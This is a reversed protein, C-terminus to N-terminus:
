ATKRKNGKTNYLYVISGIILILVLVVDIISFINNLKEVLGRLNRFENLFGLIIIQGVIFPAIFRVIVIWIEALRFNGCGQKVEKLVIKKKWFFGVFISLFFAGIPLMYNASINEIIGMPNFGIKDTSLIGTSLASPIGIIIIVMGMLTAAKVRPWKKEDILYSTIVELLSITSTLAAVLLLLFFIPMIITGFPIKSFIVPLTKFVLGTGEEPSMGFAFLAPFLAMGGLIAVLLDLGGIMLSSNPMNEKKNLYSGYTLMTGMGLSLSFFAQGMAKMMVSQELKSFDPWFIFKIGQWAGPLTLSRIMVILLMIFLLPMLIKSWREIGGKIGKGVILSTLLIIGIFCAITSFPDAAFKDFYSSIQDPPLNGLTGKISHVLYGLTWGAVVGYFSLILFGTMVGLGGVLFWPKGPKLLKFAGVPNRQSHRGITLEALMIPLGLVVVCVLYILIFIGGGSEGALYPFRWINGLGVASGAAALIFGIKSDWNERAQVM